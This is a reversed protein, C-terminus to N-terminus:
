QCDVTVRGDESDNNVNNSFTEMAEAADLIMKSSMKVMLAMSLSPFFNSRPKVHKSQGGPGLKVSRDYYRAKVSM